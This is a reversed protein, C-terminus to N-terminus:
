HLLILQQFFHELESLGRGSVRGDALAVRITELAQTSPSLLSPMRPTQAPEHTDLWEAITSALYETRGGLAALRGAEAWAGLDFAQPTSAAYPLPWGTSIPVADLSAARRPLVECGDILETTGGQPPLLRAARDLAADCREEDEAELAVRADLLHVGLRFARKSTPLARRLRAGATTTGLERRPPTSSRAAAWGKCWPSCKRPPSERAAASRLQREVPQAPPGVAGGSATTAQQRVVAWVAVVIAAAAAAAYWRRLRMRGSSPHPVAAGDAAQELRYAAAGAFLEFCDECAAIHKEVERREAPTLKGDGYAALMEASPCPENM